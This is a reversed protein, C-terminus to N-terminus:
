TRPAHDNHEKDFFKMQKRIWIVSFASVCVSGLGALISVVAGIDAVKVVAVYTTAWSIFNAGAVKIFPMVDGHNM